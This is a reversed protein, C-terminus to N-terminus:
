AVASRFAADLESKRGYIRGGKRIVPIQGNEIMHYTARRSKGIYSGIAAAGNLLDDTLTM